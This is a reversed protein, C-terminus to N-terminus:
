KANDGTVRQTHKTTNSKHTTSTPKTNNKTNHQKTNTKNNNQTTHTTNHEHKITAPQQTKDKCNQILFIISTM